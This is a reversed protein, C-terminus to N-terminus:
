EHQHCATSEFWAAPRLTSRTLRNIYTHFFSTFTCGMFNTATGTSRWRRGHGPKRRTNLDEPHAGCPQCMRSEIM